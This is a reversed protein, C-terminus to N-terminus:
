EKIGLLKAATEGLMARKEDDSFGPANMIHTVPDQHWPIPHDTGIVLQSSGVEAALHRLMESTFVLTDFYMTRLYETPKKKLKVGTDMEPAVRLCVDSRAAYSPLFGGGHASCIKLGPFRDLTGEFILHSLAITTDLPNGITNSLWGNGKFRKALEPTSQPHIFVLV